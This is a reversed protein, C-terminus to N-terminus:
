TSLNGGAGEGKGEGERKRRRGEEEGGGEEEEATYNMGQWTRRPLRTRCIIDDYREELNVSDKLQLFNHMNKEWQHLFALDTELLKYTTQCNQQMAGETVLAFNEELYYVTISHSLSYQSVSDHVAHPVSYISKM